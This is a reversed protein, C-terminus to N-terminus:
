WESVNQLRKYLSRRSEKLVHQEFIQPDDKDPRYSAMLTHADEYWNHLPAVRDESIREQRRAEDILVKLEQHMLEPKPRQPNVWDDSLIPRLLKAHQNWHLLLALDVTFGEPLENPWLERVAARQGSWPTSGVKPLLDPFLFGAVPAFFGQLWLQPYLPRWYLDSVCADAVGRLIPEALLAALPPEGFYRFDGDILCVITGNTAALGASIAAGKGTPALVVRAGSREAREVTRDSCGSASVTVDGAVNLVKLSRFAEGVVESITEEENHAPIIVSVSATRQTVTREAKLDLGLAPDITPRDM